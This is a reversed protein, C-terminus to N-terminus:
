RSGGSPSTFKVICDICVPKSTLEDIEARAWQEIAREQAEDIQWNSPSGGKSGAAHSGAELSGRAYDAVVAAGVSALGFATHAQESM